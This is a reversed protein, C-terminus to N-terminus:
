FIQLEAKLVSYVALEKNTLGQQEMRYKIAEIPWSCIMVFHRNEYDEILLAIVDAKTAKRPVDCGSFDRWIKGTCSM